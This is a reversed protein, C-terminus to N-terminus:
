AAAATGTVLERLQDATHRRTFDPFSEAEGRRLRLYARLIREIVPGADAAPVDRLIERAIHRDDGSGGGVYVHYGEIMDDGVSVKTGLLGVDGIYHQACSHHCGTLHINIPTRIAPGNVDLYDAIRAAHGKTDTAAFRCGTSGTCAVLGARVATASWDLGLAEIQRKVLPVRDEPIDSILVNQWVTLRLTGSGHADAITALGRLQEARMRGVPLVVGVYFLGPQKQPHFGVHALRDAAPPPECRQPALRQLRVHAPLHKMMEAVFGDIGMRDLVYKLRAKKRDTRDGHDIFARVAAVAAHLCEDPALLLGADRAFDKHGTIGGLEMRFYVGPAVPSGDEAVCGAGVRVALLGVDNTDAVSSVAGGGDFAINFKRPLGYLERRHLIYHHLEKCLPRVDILERADIGATPSGTINRINDAGSGRPVIGLDHLGELLAPANEPRIERLQLNARTTVDAYGGAWREALDAVGRAQHGSIIGCPLRLRCMFSDQAPAVYFLGHFKFRYVDLGRPLTGQRAHERLLDWADLPNGERKCTEENVLTKGEALFRDQARRHADAAPPPADAAQAAVPAAPQSPLVKLSRTLGSGALFGQLYNTQEVTFAEDAM